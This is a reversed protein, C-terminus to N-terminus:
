YGWAWRLRQFGSSNNITLSLNSGTGQLTTMSWQDGTRLGPWYIGGLGQDRITDTVGWYYSRNNDGDRAGNYNVGTTMPVGFETVITRSGYGGLQSNVQDIWAQETTHVTGFVSYIHLSLLTGNLRSDRGVPGINADYGTGAVVIRNRPLSPYRAVFGAALNLWDTAAIQGPENFIEAYFHGNSGYKKIVLDWMTYFDSTSTIKGASAPYAWPALMVNLGKALAADFVATYSNWWSSSTTKPNMGFRVTNAGLTNQFGTLIATSKAYTTAYSDTSTLGSPIVPGDVFNDRADAWNVGRFQTNLTAASAPTSIAVTGATGLGITAAGVIAIARRGL